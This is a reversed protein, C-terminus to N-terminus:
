GEFWLRPSGSGFWSFSRLRTIKRTLCRGFLCSESFGWFGQGRVQRSYSASGADAAGDQPGDGKRGGPGTGELASVGVGMGESLLPFGLVGPRARRFEEQQLAGRIKLGGGWFWEVM